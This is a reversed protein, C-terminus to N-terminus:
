RRFVGMVAKNPAASPINVAHGLMRQRAILVPCASNHSDHQAVEAIPTRVSCKANIVRVGDRRHQLKAVCIQAAWFRAAARDPRHRNRRPHPAARLRVRTPASAALLEVAPRM